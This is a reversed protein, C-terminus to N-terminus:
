VHIMCVHPLFTVKWLLRNSKMHMHFRQHFQFLLIHLRYFTFFPLCTLPKGWRSSKRCNGHKFNDLVFIRETSHLIQGMAASTPRGNDLYKVEFTDPDRGQGRLTVHHWRDHSWELRREIQPGTCNTSETKSNKVMIHWLTIDPNRDTLRKNDFVHHYSSSTPPTELEASGKFIYEPHCNTTFNPTFLFRKNPNQGGIFTNNRKATKPQLTRHWTEDFHSLFRLRSLASLCSVCFLSIVRKM